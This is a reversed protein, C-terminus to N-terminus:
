SLIKGLVRIINEGSILALKDKPFIFEGDQKARSLAAVVHSVGTVDFPTTVAGDFDSGFALHEYPDYHGFRSQMEGVFMPQSLAHLACVFSRVIYDIKQEFTQNDQWGMASRWFGIGILGGTSAIMRINSATLNRETPYVDYIGTHSVIVPKVGDTQSLALGCAERILAQSGHALDVAVNQDFCAQLVMRGVRSLGGKRVCDESSGGLSNSFRHTPAIMRFGAVKLGAIESEVTAPTDDENLWHLGELSLMVGLTNDNSLKHIDNSKFVPIVNVTDQQAAKALMKHFRRAILFARLRKNRLRNENWFEMIQAPFLANSQDFGECSVCLKNEDNKGPLPTWSPAAFIQFRMKAAILRPIDMHGTERRTWPDFGWLLTDSHLDCLRLNNAESAFKLNRVDAHNSAWDAFHALPEALGNRWSISESLSERQALWRVLDIM